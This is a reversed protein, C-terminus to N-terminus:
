ISNAGKSDVFYFRIAPLGANLLLYRIFRSKGGFLLSLGGRLLYIKAPLKEPPDERWEDGNARGQEEEEEEDDDNNECRGGCRFVFSFRSAVVVFRGHASYFRAFRLFPLLFCM